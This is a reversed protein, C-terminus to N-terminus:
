SLTLLRSPPSGVSSHDASNYNLGERPVKSPIGINLKLKEAVKESIIELNELSTTEHVCVLDDVVM